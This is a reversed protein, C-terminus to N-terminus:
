ARAWWEASAWEALTEPRHFAFARRSRPDPDLGNTFFTETGTSEYLFPLPRRWAPPLDPLGTSYKESQAEVGSLPMGEAKAEVAGIAKRDVLLLYDAYGTKLPFERVAVGRTAGLNLQARDQVQWGALTLLDDINKRALEEPTPM